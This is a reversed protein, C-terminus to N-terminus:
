VDFMWKAPLEPLKIDSILNDALNTEELTNRRPKYIAMKEQTKVHDERQVYRHGLKRKM